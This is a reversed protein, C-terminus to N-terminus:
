ALPRSDRGLLWAAIAKAKSTEWITNRQPGPKGNVPPSGIVAYKHGKGDFDKKAEVIIIEPGYMEALKYMLQQGPALQEVAEILAHLPSKAKTSESKKGFM